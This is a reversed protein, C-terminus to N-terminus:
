SLINHQSTFFDSLGELAIELLLAMVDNRRSGHHNLVVGCEHKCVSTHVLELIDDQAILISLPFTGGVGLLAKAHAALVIIQFLNTVIGVM